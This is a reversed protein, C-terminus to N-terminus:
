RLIRFLKQHISNNFILFLEVNHCFLMGNSRLSNRIQSVAVVIRKRAPDLNQVEDIKSYLDIDFESKIKQRIKLKISDNYFENGWILFNTTPM